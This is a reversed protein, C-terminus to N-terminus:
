GSRLSPILREKAESLIVSKKQLPNEGSYWRVGSPLLGVIPRDKEELVVHVDVWLLVYLPSGFSACGV